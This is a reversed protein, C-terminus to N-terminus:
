TFAAVAAAIGAADLTQDPIVRVREISGVLPVTGGVGVGIRLTTLGSAPGGTSATANVVGNLSGYANGAGDLAMGLSIPVGGVVQGLLRNQGGVNTRTLNTTGSAAVTFILFRHTATGNDVQMYIQATGTGVAAVTGRFLYIGKGHGNVGIAALSVVTGPPPAMFVGSAIVGRGLIAARRAIV